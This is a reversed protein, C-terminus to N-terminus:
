MISTKLVIKGNNILIFEDLDTTSNTLIIPKLFPNYEPFINNFNKMQNFKNIFDIFEDSKSFNSKSYVPSVTFVINFTLIIKILIKM